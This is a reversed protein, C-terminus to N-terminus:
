RVRARRSIERVVQFFRGWPRRNDLRFFSHIRRAILGVRVPPSAGGFGGLAPASQRLYGLDLDRTFALIGGVDALDRERGAIHKHLTFDEPGITWVDKGLLRARRRRSFAARQCETTVRFVDVRWSDHGIFKRVAFKIMGALTERWGKKVEPPVVYGDQELRGLLNKLQAEEAAVTVDPDYTPRPLPWFRVSLGGMLM